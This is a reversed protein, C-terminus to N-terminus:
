MLQLIIEAKAFPARYPLWRMQRRYGDYVTWEADPASLFSRRVLKSIFVHVDMQEHLRRLVPFMMLNYPWFCRLLGLNLGFSAPDHHHLVALSKKNYRKVALPYITFNATHGHCVAVDAIDIGIRDVAHLFNRQNRRSFLFPLVNSPLQRTAFRHVRIDGITYDDGKGPVFVEVRYHGTKRLAVVFDYCYAGSWNTPSPFFPTIVIYVPKGM